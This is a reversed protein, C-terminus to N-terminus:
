SLVGGRLGPFILLSEWFPIQVRSNVLTTSRNASRESQWELGKSVENGKSIASARPHAGKDLHAFTRIDM